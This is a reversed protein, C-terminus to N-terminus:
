KIFGFHKLTPLINPALKENKLDSTPIWRWKKIDKDPSIDGIRKALFHVLIVDLDKETTSKKTYLIFPKADIIRIDIGMEEKAKIKANEALTISYNEIKGGCFKWFDTDGHINLLVTNNEVIVPGSAIIIHTYIQTM